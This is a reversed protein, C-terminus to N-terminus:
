IGVYFHKNYYAINNTQPINVITTKNNLISEIIKLVKKNKELSPLIIFNDKFKFINNLNTYFKISNVIFNLNTNYELIFFELIGNYNSTGIFQTNAILNYDDSNRILNLIFERDSKSYYSNLKSTYYNNLFEKLQLENYEKNFVSPPVTFNYNEMHLSDNYYSTLKAM